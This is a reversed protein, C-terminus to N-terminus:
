MLDQKKSSNTSTAVIYMEHGDTAGTLVKKISVEYIEM